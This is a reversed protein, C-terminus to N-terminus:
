PAIRSNGVRKTQRPYSSSERESGPSTLPAGLPTVSGEHRRQRRQYSRNTLPLLAPCQEGKGARAASALRKEACQCVLKKGTKRNARRPLALGPQESWTM